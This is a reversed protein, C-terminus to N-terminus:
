LVKTRCIMFTRFPQRLFAAKKMADFDGINPNAKGDVMTTADGIHLRETSLRGTGAPLM